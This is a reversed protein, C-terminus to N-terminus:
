GLWVLGVGVCVLVVGAWRVVNVQEGLFIRAGLTGVAYSLSTAPVAFTVPERSLLVLLSYFAVAMLGIGMWMRGQRFARRLVRLLNAITFNELDGCQRMARTAAIEGGTGALVVTAVLLASGM